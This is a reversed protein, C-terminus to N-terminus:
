ECLGKTKILKLPVQILYGKFGARKGIGQLERLEKRKTHKEIVTVKSNPM